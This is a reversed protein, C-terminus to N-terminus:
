DHMTGGCLPRDTGFTQNTVVTNTSVPRNYFRRFMTECTWGATTMITAISVQRRMATSTSAHRCTYAIFCHMDIGAEGMTLKVYRSVTEQSAAVHPGRTTAFM